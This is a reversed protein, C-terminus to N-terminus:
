EVREGRLAHHMRFMLGFEEDEDTDECSFYALASHLAALRDDDSLEPSAHEAVFKEATYRVWRAERARADTHIQELATIIQDHTM